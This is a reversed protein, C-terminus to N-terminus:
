QPLEQSNKVNKGRESPIVKIKEESFTKNLEKGEFYEHLFIALAAVESHPQNAISINYDSLQYVQPPVKASGIIIMMDKQKTANRIKQIEKEVPMGYVTLHVKIGEFSKITKKWSSSYEIQFNGGWRNVVSEVSKIMSSDNQGTFILKDAGLARSVLACHTSIRKDREIRHSLRLTTIM